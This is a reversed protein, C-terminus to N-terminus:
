GRPDPCASVIGLSVIGLSVIGRSAIGRSVIGPFVIWRSVAAEGHSTKRPSRGEKKLAIGPSVIGTNAGNAGRWACRREGCVIGQVIVPVIGSSRVPSSVIGLASSTELHGGCWSQRGLSDIGSSAIGPCDIGSSVIGLGVIGIGRTPSPFSGGFAIGSWPAEGCLPRTKEFVIGLSVIGRAVIGLSARLLEAVAAAVAVDVAAAVTSRLLLLHQLPLLPPLLLM